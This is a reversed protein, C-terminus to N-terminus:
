AHNQELPRMVGHLGALQERALSETRALLHRAREDVAAVQQKEADTLTLIRLTLIEDIEGGDFLDGPSEPAIRPYDELIIPSALMTDKEGAEGVLVPWCGVNRCESAAQRLADPPDTLSVFEGGRAGLLLHTSVFSRLLADDRNAPAADFPTQNELRITLEFTKDAVTRASIEAHGQIAQQERVLQGIIIGASNRLAETQHHRPFDFPQHSPQDLLEGLAVPGIAVDREVAEQWAHFAKGEVELLEVAQFEKGAQKEVARNMLHLFRVHIEVTTQPQGVMLCQTQMSWADSGKQAESFSRPYIGGFTWRQRNKTSPRYPYLIYGEYLVARAIQDVLRRNM